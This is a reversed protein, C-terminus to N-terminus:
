RPRDQRLLPNPHLHSRPTQRQIRHSSFHSMRALSTWRMCASCVRGAARQGRMRLVFTQAFIIQFPPTQLFSVTEVPADIRTLWTDCMVIALHSIVLQNGSELAFYKWGSCLNACRGPTLTGTWNKGKFTRSDVPDTYCGRYTWGPVTVLTPSEPTVPSTPLNLSQVASVISTVFILFDLIIVRLRKM